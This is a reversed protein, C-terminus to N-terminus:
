TGDSCDTGSKCDWSAFDPSIDWQIPLPAILELPESMQPLNNM